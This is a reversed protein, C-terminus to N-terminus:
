PWRRKKNDHKKQKGGGDKTPDEKKLAVGGSWRAVLVCCPLSSCNRDAGGRPLGGLIGKTSFHQLFRPKRVVGIRFCCFVGYIVHNQAVLTWFCAGPVVSFDIGLVECARPPSCSFPHESISRDTSTKKCSKASIGLTGRM